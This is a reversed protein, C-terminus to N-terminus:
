YPITQKEAILAVFGGINDDKKGKRVTTVVSSSDKKRHFTLTEVLARSRMERTVFNAM